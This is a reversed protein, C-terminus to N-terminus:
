DIDTSLIFRLIRDNGTDCVYLTRDFYAVAHPNSFLDSGGFSELEDGFSNFKYISDKEADAVYINDSFDVAADEPLGFKNVNMLDTYFPELNNQYGEFDDTMIYRLWQTKFSNEGILTVILDRRDGRFSTLSSIENASLLGTGEPTFLPVRGDLMLTDVMQGNKRVKQRFILIANDPDIPNSNAPGKRSVFFDNNFFVCVGTYERDTRLYDFSYQEYPQRPFVRLVNASALDHGANFLDIKFIANYNFTNGNIVTDFEACVILNLKFDQAISTPRKISKQGLVKGAIDLMVIRDNDTDAIYIFPEKGVILDQPKNFGEWIPNQQIYLTDSVILNTPAVSNDPADFKDTCYLTFLSIIIIFTKRM